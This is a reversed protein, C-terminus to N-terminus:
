AEPEPGFDWDRVPPPPHLMKEQTEEPPEPLMAQCPQVAALM